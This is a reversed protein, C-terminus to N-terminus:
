GRSRRHPLTLPDPEYVVESVYRSVAGTVDFEYWGEDLESDRHYVKKTDLVSSIQLDKDSSYKVLDYAKTKFSGTKRKISLKPKWYVKLFAAQFSVYFYLFSALSQYLIFFFLIIFSDPFRERM